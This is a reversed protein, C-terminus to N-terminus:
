KRKELVKPNFPEVELEKEDSQTFKIMQVYNFLYNYDNRLSPDTVYYSFM